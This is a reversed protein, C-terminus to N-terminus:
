ILAALEAKLKKPLGAVVEDYSHDIWEWVKDEPPNYSLDITNWKSKNMHWGPKVADYKERLEFAKEADCKVNFYSPDSINILLFMKNMVKFVLTDSDFPFSESAGKKSLCYDRIEEINIM